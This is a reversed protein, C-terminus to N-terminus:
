GLAAAASESAAIAHQLMPTGAVAANAWTFL